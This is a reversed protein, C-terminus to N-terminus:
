RHLEWMGLVDVVSQNRVQRNELARLRAALAGIREQQQQVVKTLVAILDMPGIGKRDQVSVLEPVDEAIFGLQLDKSEDAKYKFKVADLGDLTELAERETLRVINEKFEISSGPTITGTAFINGVVHLRPAGHTAGPFLTGIGVNGSSGRVTMLTVDNVQIFM